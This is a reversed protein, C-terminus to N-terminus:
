DERIVYNGESWEGCEYHFNCDTLLDEIKERFIGAKHLRMLEQLDGDTFGWEITEAIKGYPMSNLASEWNERVWDEDMESTDLNDLAASMDALKEDIAEADDIIERVSNPIGNRGRCAILEAAHEDADYDNCYESFQYVFDANTGDFFVTMCFDEGAPSFFECDVFFEGDQEDIDSVRFGHEELADVIKKHLEM